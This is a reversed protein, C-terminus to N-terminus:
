LGSVSVMVCGVHDLNPWISFAGAADGDELKEATQSTEEGGEDVRNAELVDAPLVEDRVAAPESIFNDEDVEEEGLCVTAGKFFKGETHGGPKQDAGYEFWL